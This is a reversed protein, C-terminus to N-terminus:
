LSISLHLAAVMNSVNTGTKCASIVEVKLRFEVALQDIGVAQALGQWDSATDEPRSVRWL